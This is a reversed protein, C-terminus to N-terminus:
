IVLNPSVNQYRAQENCLHIVNQPFTQHSMQHSPSVGRGEYLRRPATSWLKIKFYWCSRGQPQSMRKGSLQLRIAITDDTQQCVKNIVWTLSCNYRWRWFNRVTCKAVKLNKSWTKLWKEEKKQKIFNTLNTWTICYILAFEWFSDEFSILVVLGKHWLNKWLKKKYSTNGFM